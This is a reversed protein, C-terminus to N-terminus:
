GNRLFIDNVEARFELSIRRPKDWTDPDFVTRSYLAEVTMRRAVGLHREILDLSLGMASAIGACTTFHGDRVMGAREVDVLLFCESFADILDWHLTARRGDLLGASALLWPAADVAVIERANRSAAQLARRTERDDHREHDYSALVFLTDCPPLDDLRSHPMVLLGSSSHVAEGDLTAIRVDFSRSRTVLNAAQLPELFNALCLNSFQDFILITIAASKTPTNTWKPMCFTWKPM